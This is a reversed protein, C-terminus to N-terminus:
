CKLLEWIEHKHKLGAKKWDMYDSKPACPPCRCEGLLKSLMHRHALTHTHTYLFDKNQESRLIVTM